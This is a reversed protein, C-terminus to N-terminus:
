ESNREEIIPKYKKLHETLEFSEREQYNHLFTVAIASVIVAIFLITKIVIALTNNGPKKTTQSKHTELKEM